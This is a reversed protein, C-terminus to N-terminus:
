RYFYWYVEQPHNIHYRALSFFVRPLFKAGSHRNKFIRPKILNYFTPVDYYYSFTLALQINELNINSTHFRLTPHVTFVIRLRDERLHMWGKSYRPRAALRCKNLFTVCGVKINILSGALLNALLLLLM